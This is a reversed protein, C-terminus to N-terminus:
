LGRENLNNDCQSRGLSASITIGSKGFWSVNSKDILFYKIFMNKLIINGFIDIVVAFYRFLDMIVKFVEYSLKVVTMFISGKKLQFINFILAITFLPASLILAVLFYIINIINKM